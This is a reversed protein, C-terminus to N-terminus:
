RTHHVAPRRMVQVATCRAPGCQRRRPSSGRSRVAAGRHLVEYQTVRTATCRSPPVAGAGRRAPGSAPGLRPVFLRRVSPSCRRIRGPAMGCSSSCTARCVGGRPRNRLGTDPATATGTAGSSCWRHGAQQVDSRAERDAALLRRCWRPAQMLAVPARAKRGRRGPRPAMRNSVRTVDRWMPFRWSMRDPIWSSVPGPPTRLVTTSWATASSTASSTSCSTATRTTHSTAGSTAERVTDCNTSRRM